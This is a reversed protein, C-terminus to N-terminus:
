QVTLLVTTSHTDAGSTGTITLTYTQSQKPTASGGGCGAMSTVIGLATVIAFLLLLTRLYWRRLRHSPLLMLIGLAPAVLPWSKIRSGALKTSAMQVTLTSTASSATAAARKSADLTVSGLTVPNPSFTATAAAPLGTVSLTVSGNYTGVVPKVMVEYTATGGATVTQSPTSSSVNYDPASGTGSLATTQPSGAANDAVTLTATYTSAAAPTFTVYISCSSGAVLSSGCNNTQSFDGPDAGAITISTIALPVNGTNSLTATQAASPTGTTATFSLAVPRLAAALSIASFNATVSQPANMTVTTTASSTSAVNGTWSSFTYGANPTASLNVVTGSVYYSGSVPSVTGGNAPSTVTMLQYSTNFTATYSPTSASATVSHSLAGNDSWSAFSNQTGSSTQPSTTAITHSSGISWTLTQATTYATGDVSFSLGSPTTGVTVSTTTGSSQGTGSLNIQQNTGTLNLTNDTLVVGGSIAGSAQPAFEIGLVCSAASTLLQGNTACSTESGGLTFNTATSITTIDLQANGLNEIVVDQSASVSGTDTNPFTLSPANSVHVKRIRNSDVDAIYLNGAGDLAVDVPWNLEASTAVINDGNYGQTGNGAVTTIVGTVANVVRVSSHNYSVIYLNGAGDLAVGEPSALEASTAPGGDGIYGSTGNGAVTTIVGTAASVKRIRENYGDVIYLNGAGDVAVKTAGWLQASTAPGGDGSYGSTGNGAVTTIIGPGFAIAPGVGIGWVYATALPKPPKSTDYLVVAGERVGPALPSFTVFVACTAGSSYSSGALCQGGGVSVNVAFDRGTAGQTLAVPSGILGGSDFTFTLPITVSTQGITATGFNVAQTNLEVVRDNKYDAVYPNGSADLVVDTPWYLDSDLTIITPSAPISGSVALIEKLANNGSDAVYVNGSGDVAVGNPHSFGSGLTNITPSAPISGNVAVIEYVANSLASTVFVDGSTDVAIMASALSSLPLLIFGNLLAAFRVRLVLKGPNFQSSKLM